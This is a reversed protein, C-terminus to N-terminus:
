RIKTYLDLIDEDVKSDYYRILCDTLRGMDLIGAICSYGRFLNYVHVTDTALLVCDIYIKEIYWNHIRFQDIQIVKYQRPDLHGLLM